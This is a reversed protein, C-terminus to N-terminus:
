VLGGEGPRHFGGALQPPLQGSSNRQPLHMARRLQNKPAYQALGQARRAYLQAQRLLKDKPIKKAESRVKSTLKEIDKGIDTNALALGALGATGIRAALAAGGASSSGKLAQAVLASGMMGGLAGGIAGKGKHEEPALAYGLGAPILIKGLGSMLGAEKVAHYRGVDAALGLLAAEKKKEPLKKISKTEHAWRRATGDPVEGRDEAAFMFRQQAKSKFPM